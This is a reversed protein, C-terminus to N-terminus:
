CKKEQGKVGRKKRLVYCRFGLVRQKPLLGNFLPTSFISLTNMRFPSAVHTARERGPAANRFDGSKEPQVKHM